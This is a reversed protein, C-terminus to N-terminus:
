GPACGTVEIREAVVELAAGSANFCVLFHRAAAGPLVAGHLTLDEVWRSGIVEQAADYRADPLVPSEDQWRFAVTRRFSLEVRRGRWDTFAVRLDGLRYTIEPTSADATSFADLRQYREPSPTAPTLRLM